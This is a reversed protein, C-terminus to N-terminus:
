AAVSTRQGSALFFRAGHMCATHCLVPRSATYLALHLVAAPIAQLLKSCNPVTEQVGWATKPM